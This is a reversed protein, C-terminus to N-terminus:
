FLRLTKESGPPVGEKEMDKVMQRIQQSIRKLGKQTMGRMNQDVLKGDLAKCMKKADAVMDNFVQAPNSSRPINMFLTIGGTAFREKDSAPLAGDKQLSAMSYILEGNKDDGHRKEYISRNNLHLGLDQACNHIESGRFYQERAVVNLIAVADFKKCFEDLKNAYELADNLSVSFKFRRGFVDAFRLVMQSFRNLESETIPGSRDALQVSIGLDTFKATEPQKELNCWKRGPHLVGFMRHKKRIDFEFQRYLGLATDRNIANEGPIRAVLEIPMTDDPNYNATDLEVTHMDSEFLSMTDAAKKKANKPVTPKAKPKPPKEKTESEEEAQTQLDPEQRELPDSLPSSQRDFIGPWPEQRTHIISSVDGTEVSAPEEKRRTSRYRNLSIIVVLAFVFIGTILLVTRLEIM